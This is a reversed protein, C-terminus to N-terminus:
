SALISSLEAQRVDATPAIRLEADTSSFLFKDELNKKFGSRGFNYYFLSVITGHVVVSGGFAKRLTRLLTRGADYTATNCDLLRVRADTTLLPRLAQALVLGTGDSRFLYDDGMFLAGSGGHDVLDLTDVLMNREVAVGRVTPVLQQPSWCRAVRFTDTPVAQEAILDFQAGYGPSWKPHDGVIMLHISM